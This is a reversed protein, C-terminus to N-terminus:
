DNKRARYILSGSDIMSGDNFRCFSNEDGKASKGVVAIGGLQKECLYSAPNNTGHRAERSAKWSLKALDAVAECQLKKNKLCSASVTLKQAASTVFDVKKETFSFTSPSFGTASASAISATFFILLLSM